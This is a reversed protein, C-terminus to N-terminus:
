ARDGKSSDIWDLYKKAVKAVRGASNSLWFLYAPDERHVDQIRKAKYKGFPIVYDAAWDSPNNQAVFCVHAGCDKCRREIHITGNSFMRENDEVWYHTCKKSVNIGRKGM